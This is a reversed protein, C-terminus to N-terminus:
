GLTSGQEVRQLKKKQKALESKFKEFLELYEAQLKKDGREFAKGRRFNNYKYREEQCQKYFNDRELEHQSRLKNDKDQLKACQNHSVAGLAYRISYAAIRYTPYTSYM